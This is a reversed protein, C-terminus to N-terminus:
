FNDRSNIFIAKYTEDTFSFGRGDVAIEVVQMVKLYNMITELEDKLKIKVNEAYLKENEPLSKKLNKIYKCDDIVSRLKFLFDDTNFCGFEKLINIKEKMIIERNLKYLDNSLELYMSSNKRIGNIDIPFDEM